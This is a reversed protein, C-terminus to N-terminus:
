AMNLIFETLIKDKIFFVWLVVVVVFVCLSVCFLSLWQSSFLTFLELWTSVGFGKMADGYPLRAPFCCLLWSKFSWNEDMIDGNRAGMSLSQM